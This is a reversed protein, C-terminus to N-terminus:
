ESSAVRPRGMYKELECRVAARARHLLVRQNSESINLVNCVEEASWGEVDHLTIVERQNASLREIARHIISQTEESLLHAEPVNEWSEPPLSWHGPFRPNTFREEEVTPEDANFTDLLSFAISRGERQARTQSRNVLISYIWTKLSSRGEFRSIGEFVALWTEQVIEEALEREALYIQAIRIMSAHYNDLLFEFIAEDRNRLREVIERENYLQISQTASIM